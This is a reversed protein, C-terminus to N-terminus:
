QGSASAMRLVAEWEPLLHLEAVWRQVYARDLSAGRVTLIRVVDELQRQSQALKAWEIKAIVVDEATAIYLTTEQFAAQTRRRFEEQSFPRPRCIILDIKWGTTLDVVNFMSHRELAELAADVDVYYEGPPLLRIFSRVQNANPAIVMDVDQTTRPAGYYASAFSGTLMYSIGAQDLASTIRRFVDTTTM